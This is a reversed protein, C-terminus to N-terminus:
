RYQRKQAVLVKTKLEPPLEIIEVTINNRKLCQAMWSKGQFHSAAQKDGFILIRRGVTDFLENAFLLRLADAMVKNKQASKPSGVHAWAECLVLPFECLGDLEVWSGGDLRLRRKDLKIGLKKSLQKVLWGEAEKQESSEGPSGGITVQTISKGRDPPQKTRDTASVEYYRFAGERRERVLHGHKILKRLITNVQQEPNIHLKLSIERQTHGPHKQVFSLVKDTNTMM